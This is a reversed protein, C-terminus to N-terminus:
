LEVDERRRGDADRWNKQGAPTPAGLQRRARARGDPTRHHIEDWPELAYLDSYGSLYINRGDSVAPDFAGPGFRFVEHGTSISLGYTTYNGVDSFYLIRGIITPSGSIKGGADYHWSIAGTRANIAYLNGNYSGIFVTPGIRPADTVAPSSYVYAGTQVTWALAGDRADYAYVSGDTNGLFVRGYRLAATSYFSGGPATVWLAKGDQERVAQVDGSYDGFYLIGDLLSPSAKVAGAAHYTWILRGNSAKLAYVTGDESGFFVRGRDVIPSSESRSPLNRSWLIKGSSEDLAVVRGAEIGQARELVTAFVRGGMVAPTSASM